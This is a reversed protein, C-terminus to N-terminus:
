KSEEMMVQQLDDLEGLIRHFFELTMEQHGEALQRILAKAERITVVAKSKQSKKMQSGLQPM